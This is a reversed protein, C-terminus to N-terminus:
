GVSGEMELEILRNLEVAYEMPLNKVVPAAFGNVIMASAAEETFGRSMMYFLQEEGIKSVIAEHEVTVDEEEIKNTPYTDSRSEEDLILADCVVKSRSGKAGKYMQVLGRYSARGGEKSISKSTVTSTTESAAHIMKAGTDQHQNKGSFALSIVEGHAKKGVLFCSPYKMTVKSGLNCDVWVGQGEEEVKMRKTVLNFVNKYWNQVTSYQVMAGKGVVIEVVASHLSGQSYKPASCGEIYHVYAGEEAIILTREFQGTLESNIRFYAQLPKEVRVGAPIYVFSGGSWVASNLAAFKNDLAPVITGFYKRVLEPYEKVAQDMSTYIVGKKRIEENLSGYVV